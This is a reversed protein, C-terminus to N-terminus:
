GRDFRTPDYLAADLGTPMAGDVLLAAGIAAAAPATQIGFGGQGAFWFFGPLRPDFGYVPRRDPAFARLGAWSREVRAIRWDVAGELRDIAIAVDLEEPAVDHPDVATEDHPSLWLRGGAEPKFYFAGGLDVVFPMGSPPVPDTALQAMTRRYAVIGLPRAGALTAVADAWAGAANVVVTAAFVGAATEIRWAADTRHLATVMADTVITAGARRAQALADGHFRGTDIYSCSPEMVGVRWAPRLGAVLAHPDVRRLDVGSGDFEALLADALREDGARAIHLSGLPDLYGAARMPAGSWTTLPQIAAGGYTESWFAASRGTAHYGPASEGEILLVRARDGIAAALTAGAIGAGVIAIDHTV